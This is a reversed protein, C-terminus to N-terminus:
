PKFRLARKMMALTTDAWELINLTSDINQPPQTILTDLRILREFDVIGSRGTNAPLFTVGALQM